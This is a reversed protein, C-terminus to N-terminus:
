NQKENIKEEIASIMEGLNNHLEKLEDLELTYFASIGYGEHGFIIRGRHGSTQTVYMNTMEVGNKRLRNAEALKDAGLRPM